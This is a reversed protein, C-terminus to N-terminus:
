YQGKAYKQKTLAELKVRDLGLANIKISLSNGALRMKESRESDSLKKTLQFAWLTDNGDQLEMWSEEFKDGYSEIRNQISKSLNPLNGKKYVIASAGNYEPTYTTINM